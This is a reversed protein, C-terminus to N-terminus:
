KCLVMEVKGPTAIVHPKESIKNKYHEDYEYSLIPQNPIVVAAISLFIDQLRQKADKHLKEYYEKEDYENRKRWYKVNADAKRRRQWAIDVADYRKDFLHYDGDWGAARALDCIADCKKCAESYLIEAERIKARYDREVYKRGLWAELNGSSTNELTVFIDIRSPIMIKTEHVSFVDLKRYTSKFSVTAVVKRVKPIRAGSSASKKMIASDGMDKIVDSINQLTSYKKSNHNVAPSSGSPKEILNRIDNVMKLIENAGKKVESIVYSDDYYGIREEYREAIQYSKAMIKDCLANISSHIDACKLSREIKLCAADLDKLLPKYKKAKAESSQIIRNCHDRAYGINYLYENKTM